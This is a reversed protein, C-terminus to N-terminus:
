PTKTKETTKKDLKVIEGELMIKLPGQPMDNTLEVWIGRAKDIKGDQEAAKGIYYRAKNFKPDIKLAREFAAYSEVSIISDNAMMLAEGFDTERAPSSGLKTLLEQLVRTADDFQNARMYLPAILELGRTDTPSAKIRAEIQTILEDLKAKAPDAKAREVLPLDPTQPQGIYAYIPLCLAPIAVLITIAAWRLTAQSYHLSAVIPQVKLLARAAEAKAIEADPESILQQKQQLEIESMQAHYFDVSVGNHTPQKQATVLSRLLIFMTIAMIILAAICM